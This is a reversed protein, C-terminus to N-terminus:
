LESMDKPSLCKIRPINTSIKGVPCKSCNHSGSNEAVFNKKCIKCWSSDIDDLTHGEDDMYQGPKCLKCRRSGLGSSGAFTFKGLPCIKCSSKAQSDQYRGPLCNACKKSADTASYTGPICPICRIRGSDRQYYGKPCDICRTRDEGEKGGRKGSPCTKCSTRGLESSYRGLPCQKCKVRNIMESVHYDAGKDNYYGPLCDICHKTGSTEVSYQGPNCHNKRISQDTAFVTQLLLSLFFCTSLVSRLLVPRFIKRKFCLRMLKAIM